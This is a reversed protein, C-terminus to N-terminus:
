KTAVSDGVPVVFFATANEVFRSIDLVFGSNVYHVTNSKDQQVYLKVYVVGSLTLKMLYM